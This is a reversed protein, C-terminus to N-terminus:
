ETSCDRKALEILCYQYPLGEPVAYFKDNLRKYIEDVLGKNDASLGIKVSSESWARVVHALTSALKVKQEPDNLYNGMKTFYACPVTMEDISNLKYLGTLAKEELLSKMEEPTAFYDPVFIANM